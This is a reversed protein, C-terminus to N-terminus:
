ENSAGENLKDATPKSLFVEVLWSKSLIDFATVDATLASKYRKIKQERCEVNSRGNSTIDELSHNSKNM